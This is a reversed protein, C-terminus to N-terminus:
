FDCKLGIGLCSTSCMTMKIPATCNHRCFVCRISLHSISGIECDLGVYEKKTVIVFLPAMLLCFNLEVKLCGTKDPSLIVCPWPPSFSAYM